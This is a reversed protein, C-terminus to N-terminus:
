CHCTFDFGSQRISKKSQEKRLVNQFHFTKFNKLDLTYIKFTYLSLFYFLMLHTYPIFEHRMKFFWISVHGASLM